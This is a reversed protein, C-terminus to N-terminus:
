KGRILDDTCPIGVEIWRNKFEFKHRQIFNLVSDCVKDKIM